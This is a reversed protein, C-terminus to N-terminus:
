TVTQCSNVQELKQQEKNSEAKILVAEAEAVKKM